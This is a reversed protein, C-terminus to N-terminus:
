FESLASDRVRKEDTNYVIIEKVEGRNSGDSNIVRNAGIESVDFQRDDKYIHKIAPANSMVVSVGKEDLEIATKRLRVQEDRGFKESTYEVFSSSKGAPDYPPDFYVLDGEEAVDVVYGFDQNNIDVGQLAGAAQHVRSSVDPKPDSYDGCPVNFEGDRNERYLGNFCTRNLYLLRAAEKIKDFEEGNPRRNFLARQQYYYNDVSRGKRDVKSFELSPDTDAHYPKFSAYVDLLKNPSDRVVEYFSMLRTNIDNITGDCDSYEAFFVAGGGFFPEHYRNIEESPFLHDRINSLIQRKGGAWKLVPKAM